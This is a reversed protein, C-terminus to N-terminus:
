AAVSAVAVTRSSEFTLRENTECWPCKAETPLKDQQCHAIFFPKGCTPQGCRVAIMKAQPLIRHDM